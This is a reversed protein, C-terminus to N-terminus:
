ATKYRFQTVVVLTILSAVALVWYASENVGRDYAVFIETATALAMWLLAIVILGAQAAGVTRWITTSWAM